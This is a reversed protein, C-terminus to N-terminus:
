EVILKGSEVAKNGKLLRYFYIGPQAGSLIIQHLSASNLQETLQKKGIVDYL